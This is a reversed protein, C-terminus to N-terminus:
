TETEVTEETTSDTNKEETTAEEKAKSAKSALIEKLQLLATEIINSLQVQTFFLTIIPYQNKLYTYVEAFKIKGTDSGWTEEAKAVGYLATTYLLDKKNRYLLVILAIVIVIGVFFMIPNNIIWLLIPNDM